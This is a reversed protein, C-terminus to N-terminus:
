LRELGKQEAVKKVAENVDKKLTSTNSAIFQRLENDGQEKHGAFTAQATQWQEEAQKIRARDPDTLDKEPKKSM